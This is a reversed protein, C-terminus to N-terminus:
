FLHAALLLSGWASGLHQLIGALSLNPLSFLLYSLWWVGRPLAPFYFLGDGTRFLEFSRLVAEPRRQRIKPSALNSPLLSWGTEFFGKSLLQWKGDLSQLYLAFPFIILYICNITWLTNKQLSFSVGCCLLAVSFSIKKNFCCLCLSVDACWKMVKLQCKLAQSFWCSLQRASRFSANLM